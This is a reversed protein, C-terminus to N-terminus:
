GAAPLALLAGLIKAAAQDSAPIVKAYHELLVKPSNGLRSSTTKVDVGGALLHTAAWSRLDKLQIQELGAKKRLATFSGTVRGPRWFTRYDADQSWVYCDGTLEDGTAKASVEARAKQATLVAVTLEDLAMPRDRHTKTDKEVPGGIRDPLDSIASSVVLVGRELDVASWHLACLEGRRCGTSAATLILAGLDPADEAVARLLQGIQDPSPVGRDAPRLPPKESAAAPNRAIWEWRIAQNLAQSVFAGYHHRSTDGLGRAKLALQLDDLHAATLKALPLQGVSTAAVAQAIRRYELLTKPARGRGEQHEIYRDFLLSLPADTGKVKTAEVTAELRHAVAQVERPPNKGTWARRTGTRVTESRQGYRGTVTDRGTSVTVEWVGPSRERVRAM